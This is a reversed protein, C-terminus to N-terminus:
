ANENDFVEVVYRGDDDVPLGENYKGAGRVIKNYKRESIMFRIYFYVMVCVAILVVSATATVFLQHPNM